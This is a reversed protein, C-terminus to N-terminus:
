ATPAPLDLAHQTLAHRLLEAFTEVDGKAADVEGPDLVLIPGADTHAIVCPTAGQSVDRVASDREDLHVLHFSVGLRAVLDDWQQKRRVPGHTVDCLGCRTRGLLKGVVYALEGRIGGDAHYVGTFGRVTRAHDTM